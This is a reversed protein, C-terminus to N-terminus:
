WMILLEEEGMSVSTISLCAHSVLQALAVRSPSDLPACDSAFSVRQLAPFSSLWEPLGPMIWKIFAFHGDSSLILTQVSNLPPSVRNTAIRANDRSHDDVFYPVLFKLSLEKPMVGQIAAAIKGGLRAFDVARFVSQQIPLFLEVSHLQPLPSRLVDLLDRVNGPSGSLCRLQPLQPRKTRRGLKRSGPYTFNPHLDLRQISPHRSLFKLLDMFTIDITEVLFNSLSPIAISSLTASWTERPIGSIRLSLTHIPSTAMIQMFWEYFPDIFFLDSHISFIQLRPPANHQTVLTARPPSAILFTAISSVSDRISGGRTRLHLSPEPVDIRLFHGHTVVLQTCGKELIRTLLNVFDAKWGESNLVALGDVWRSDINGLHLTVAKVGELKLVFSILHHVEWAFHPDGGGFKCSLSDLSTLTILTQLGPLACVAENELVLHRSRLDADDIGYRSLYVPLALYHLRQSTKSVALLAPPLLSEFILLLLETSLATLLLSHQEPEQLEM